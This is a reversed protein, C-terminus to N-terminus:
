GSFQLIHRSLIKDHPIPIFACAFRADYLRQREQIVIWQCNM